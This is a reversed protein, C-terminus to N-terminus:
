FFERQSQLARDTARRACIWANVQRGTFPVRLIVTPQGGHVCAHPCFDGQTSVMQPWREERGGWFFILRPIRSLVCLVFVVSAHSLLSVGCAQLGLMGRHADMITRKPLLGVSLLIKIVPINGALSNNQMVTKIEVSPSIVSM